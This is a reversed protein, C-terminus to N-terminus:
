SEQFWALGKMQPFRPGSLPSRSSKAPGGKGRLVRDGRGGGGEASRGVHREAAGGVPGATQPGQVRQERGRAKRGLHRM